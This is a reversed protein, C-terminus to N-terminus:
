RGSHRCTATVTHCIGSTTSVTTQAESSPHLYWGFCKSCNVSLIFQTVDCIKPYIDSYEDYMNSFTYTLNSNTEYLTEPPLIVRHAAYAVRLVSSGTGVRGGYRCIAIVTHCIGSATSVATQAGSSPHLYWGFCTSCNGSLIFQM